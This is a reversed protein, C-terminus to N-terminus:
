FETKSMTISTFISYPAGSMVVSVKVGDQTKWNSAEQGREIWSFSPTGYLERLLRCIESHDGASTSILASYSSNQMFLRLFNYGLKDSEAPCVLAYDSGIDRIEWTSNSCLCWFEAADAPGRSSASEFFDYLFSIEEKLNGAAKELRTKERKCALPLCCFLVASCFVLSKITKM